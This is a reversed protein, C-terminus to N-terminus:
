DSPEETYTSTRISLTLFSPVVTLTTEPVHKPMTPGAADADADRRGGGDDVREGAAADADGDTAADADADGDTAADEDGVRGADADADGAAGAAAATSESCELAPHAALETVVATGSLTPTQM